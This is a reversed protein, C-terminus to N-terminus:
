PDVEILQRPAPYSGPERQAAGVREPGDKTGGGMDEGKAETARILNILMAVIRTITRKAPRIQEETFVGFDVFEDLSAAGETGSGRAIHYRHVKDATTWRGAGEALNRGISKIGRRLNDVGEAHGRLKKPPISGILEAIQRNLKRWLQYVDLREHDLQPEM